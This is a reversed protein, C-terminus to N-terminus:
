RKDGDPFSSFWKNLKDAGRFFPEVVGFVVLSCFGAKNYGRLTRWMPFARQATLLYAPSILSSEEAQLWSFM